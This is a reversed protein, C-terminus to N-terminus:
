ESKVGSCGVFTVESCGGPCHIDVCDPHCPRSIIPGTLDVLTPDQSKTPPLDGRATEEFAPLISFIPTPPVGPHQRRKRKKKGELTASFNKFDDQAPRVISKAIVIAPTETDYHYVPNPGHEVVRRPVKTPSILASLHKDPPPRLLSAEFVPVDRKKTWMAPPTNPVDTLPLREVVPQGAKGDSVPATGSDKQSAEGSQPPAASLGLDAVVSSPSSSFGMSCRKMERITKQSVVDFEPVPSLPRPLVSVSPAHRMRRQPRAPATPNAPTPSPLLIPSALLPSSAIPQTSPIVQPCTEPLITATRTSKQLSAPTSTLDHQWRELFLGAPSDATPPMPALPSCSPHRREVFLTTPSHLLFPSRPPGAFLRATFEVNNNFPSAPSRPVNSPGPFPLSPTAPLLPTSPLSSLSPYEYPLRRQAIQRQRPSLLQQNPSCPPFEHRNLITPSPLPPRLPAFHRTDLQPPPFAASAGLIPPRPRVARRQLYEALSCLVILSLGLLELSSVVM